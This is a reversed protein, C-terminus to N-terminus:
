VKAIYTRYRRQAFAADDARLRTSITGDNELHIAFERAKARMKEAPVRKHRIGLAEHRKM